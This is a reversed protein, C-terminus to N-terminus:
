EMLGRELLGTNKAVILTFNTGIIWKCKYVYEVYSEEMSKGRKLDKNGLKSEAGVKDYIIEGDKRTGM